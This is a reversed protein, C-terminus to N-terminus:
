WSQEGGPPGRARKSSSPGIPAASRCSASRRRAPAEARLGRQVEPHPRRRAVGLPEAPADVDDRPEVCRAPSSSPVPSCRLTTGGSCAAASSRSAHAGRPRATAASRARMTPASCTTSPASAPGSGSAVSARPSTGPRGAATTRGPDVASTAATTRWQQAAPSASTGRPPAVPSAPPATGVPPSTTTSSPRIRATRDNSGPSHRMSTSAPRGARVQVAEGRSCPSRKPGSGPAASCDCTPPITAVFAPPGWAKPSPTVRSQTVPRSATTAGPRRHNAGAARQALVDGAVVQRAARPDSPVSPDDGRRPQPELRRGPGGHADDGGAGVRLGAARRDEVDQGRAQPGGHEVDEVLARRGRRRAGEREAVEPRRRREQDQGLGLARWGLRRAAGLRQALHQRLPRARDQDGRGPRCARATASARRRRGATAAWCPPLSPSSTATGTSRRTSRTRSVRASPARWSRGVAAPAVGAVAVEM